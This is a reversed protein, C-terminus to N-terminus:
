SHPQSLGTGDQRNERTQSRAESRAMDRSGRGNARRGRVTHWALRLASAITRVPRNDLVSDRYVCLLACGEECGKYTRGYARIDRQTYEVIPKNLRGRQASCFQVNGFEDVYLFRSGARCQWKPREGELLQAGYDQDL